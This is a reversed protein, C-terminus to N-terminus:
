SRYTRGYDVATTESEDNTRYQRSEELKVLVVDAGIKVINKWPIVVEANSGFLGLFRGQSPVVLSDIRGQRLDLELDSVQGLKKGDVINIVDKTQFDSIKMSPDGRMKLNEDKNTLIHAAQDFHGSPM